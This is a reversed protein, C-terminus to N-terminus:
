ARKATGATNSKTTTARGSPASASAAKSSRSRTKPPAKARAAAAAKSRGTSTAAVRSAPRGASATRRAAVPKEKIAPGRGGPAAEADSRKGIAYTVTDRIKLGIAEAVAQLRELSAGAYRTAEYRQIQQEPIGLKKAVASQTLGAVIRGEILAVPLEAWSRLRRTRVEGAKLAQYRDVQENLDALQSELGDIMAEHIREHVGSDPGNEKAARVAAEFERIQKKTILYQRQNAIM